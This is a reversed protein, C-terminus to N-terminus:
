LQQIIDRLIMAFLHDPKYFPIPRATDSASSLEPLIPISGLLKVDFDVALKKVKDKGFIYKKEENEDLLYSMNEVVGLVKVGLKSFMNIGKRVDTLALEQSTSVVIVGDIEYNECLSLHIDGTGPPTDIILYDLKENVGVWKTAGLLQYLMKTTMPGRWVVAEKQDVLFGISMLKIGFKRHPIILNDDLVAKSHIGSLQPLSPGYVDADLLGVKYGKEALTIALNFAITSKGVGGKGSAILIVKEIGNLKIRSKRREDTNIRTTFTIAVKQFGLQSLIRECERKLKFLEDKSAKDDYITLFLIKDRIVPKVISETLQKGTAPHNVQALIQLVDKENISTM